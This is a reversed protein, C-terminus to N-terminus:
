LIYRHISQKNLAEVYSLLPELKLAEEVHQIHLPKAMTDSPWLSRTAPIPRDGVQKPVTITAMQSMNRDAIM